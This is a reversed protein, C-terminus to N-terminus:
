SLHPLGGHDSDRVVMIVVKLGLEVVVNVSVVLSEPASRSVGSVFRLKERDGTFGWLHARSGGDGFWWPNGVKIM